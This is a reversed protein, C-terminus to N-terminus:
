INRDGDDVTLRERNDYIEIIRSAVVEELAEDVAEETLEDCAVEYMMERAEDDVEVTVM